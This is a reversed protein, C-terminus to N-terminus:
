ADAKGGILRNFTLHNDFKGVLLECILRLVWYWAGFQLYIKCLLNTVWLGHFYYRNGEGM